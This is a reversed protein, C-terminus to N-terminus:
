IPSAIMTVTGDSGQQCKFGSYRVAGSPLTVVLDLTVLTQTMSMRYWQLPYVVKNVTAATLAKPMFMTACVTALDPLAARAAGPLLWAATVLPLFVRSRKM